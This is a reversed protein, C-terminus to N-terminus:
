ADSSRDAHTPWATWRPPLAWVARLGGFLGLGLRLQRRLARRQARTPLRAGGAFRAMRLAHVYAGADASRGVRRELWTLTAGAPLPRGMRRLAVELESVLADVSRLPRTALAVMALLLAFVAGLAAFLPLETSSHTGVRASGHGGASTGRRKYINAAATKSASLGNGTAAPNSVADFSIPTHGSRAPAVGPTPDFRVWGYQPFWAEVWAHADYDTVLWRKTAADYRGPTFGAAVRAPVGGMRLLLAMAGAFQQCYGRRTAFLFSELPYSSRAPREDYTYGHSLYREVAQVFGFPTSAGTSLRQALRYADRYTSREVLAGGSMNAPGGSAEIPDGSHFPPFVLTAQHGHPLQGTMFPSDQAPTGPSPPLEITRYGQPVGTYDAGANLLQAASPNPVYVRIQYGDGTTLGSVTWTGPSPGPATLESLHTPQDSNGAGIVQTTRMNEITVTITQTWRKLSTTPVPPTSGTVSGQSWGIGNFLDLNEAKWYDPKPAQVELVVHGTRPWDLPGYGQSWDFGEIGGPGLGGALARYDFWPKHRDIAPAVALAAVVAIACLGLASGVRRRAIREGWMFAVLLGFLVAGDLYPIGPRLLTTPVAALAVLPLAAGARRLDEMAGPAFAVLLAADFLLVAAGLVIVLTVWQNVGSYPVLVQPLASLGEGIADATVAIRIHLVWELPVGSIPLAAILAVFTGVAALLRSRKAVAPRGAALLLAVALLGLLRALSGGALLTSWKLTCYLALAGFTVLRTTPRARTSRAPATVTGRAGVVAVQSIPATGVSV